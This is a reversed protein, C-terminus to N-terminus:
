GNCDPKASPQAVIRSGAAAIALLPAAVTVIFLVVTFLRGPQDPALIPMVAAAGGCLASAVALRLSWFKHWTAGADDILRM